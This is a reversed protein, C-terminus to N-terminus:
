SEYRARNFRGGVGENRAGPDGGQLGRRELRPRDAFNGDPADTRIRGALPAGGEEGTGTRHRIPLERERDPDLSDRAALISRIRVLAHLDSPRGYSRRSRRSPTGGSTRSSPRSGFTSGAPARRVM